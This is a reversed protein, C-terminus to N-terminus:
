KYLTDNAFDYLKKVVAIMAEDVNHWVLAPYLPCKSLTKGNLTLSLALRPRKGTKDTQNCYGCGDCIKTRYFVLAKLEDDMKEYSKILTSFQPVKFEFVMQNKKRWDYFIRMYARQKQPYEKEYSVSMENNSFAYGEELFYRELKAIQEVDCVKGFMEAASYQKNGFRGYLFIMMNQTRIKGDKPMSCHLKWAPFLEKYKNHTFILSDATEDCVLGVRSLKDKTKQTIKMNSKNIILKSELVEGLLGIKFFYEFFDFFNKEIKQMKLILEPKVNNCQWHEYCEDPEALVNVLALDNYITEISDYLFDYMQRQSLESASCTAVPKFQPYTALHAYIVRKGLNDFPQGLKNEFM